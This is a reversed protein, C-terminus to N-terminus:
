PRPLRCLHGPWIIEATVDSCDLDTQQILIGGMCTGYQAMRIYHQAMLQRCAKNGYSIATISKQVCGTPFNLLLGWSECQSEM